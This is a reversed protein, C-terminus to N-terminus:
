SSFTSFMGPWLYNGKLRLILEFRHLFSCLIVESFTRMCEFTSSTISLATSTQRVLATRTSRWQGARSHQNNMTSSSEVTSSPPPGMLADQRASLFVRNNKQRFMQGGLSWFYRLSLTLCVDPCRPRILTGSGLHCAQDIWSIHPPLYILIQRHFLSLIFPGGFQESHDYLAYITGRKDAGIIVYASDIGPLPNKVVLSQFAEWKGQIGSVDLSATSVIQSILSSKGLTGIIIPLTKQSPKTSAIDAATINQFTPKTGTVRQIDAVFDSAAIQVGPWDDASIYVPAARKKDVVPFAGTSSSFSVCKEQGIAAVSSLLSLAGLVLALNQKM